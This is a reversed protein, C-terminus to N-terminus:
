FGPKAQQRKKAKKTTKRKTVKKVIPMEDPPAELNSAQAVAGNEAIKTVSCSAPPSSLASELVASLSEEVANHTTSPTMPLNGAAQQNGPSKTARKRRRSRKKRNKEDNTATPEVTIPKEESSVTVRASISPMGDEAVISPEFALREGQSIKNGDQKPHPVPSTTSPKTLALRRAKKRAKREGRSITKGDGDQGAHPIPTTASPDRGGVPPGEGM